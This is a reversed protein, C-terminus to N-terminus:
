FDDKHSESNQTHTHTHLFILKMPYPIKASVKMLVAYLSPTSYDWDASRTTPHHTSSEPPTNFPFHSSRPDIIESTISSDSCGPVIMRTEYSLDNFM